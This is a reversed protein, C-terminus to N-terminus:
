IAFSPAATGWEMPPVPDKYLVIHDPGLGVVVGLPLLNIWGVTQGYYVFMVSLCSLVSLSRDTPIPRVTKCVTAWYRVKIGCSM